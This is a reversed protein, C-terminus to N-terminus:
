LKDSMFARVLRLDAHTVKNGSADIISRMSAGSLRSFLEECLIRKDPEVLRDVDLGKGRGEQLLTEIHLSITGESLGRLEAIAEMSFGKQAMKRTEEITQGSKKKRPKKIKVPV